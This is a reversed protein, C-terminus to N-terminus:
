LGIVRELNQRTLIACQQPNGSWYDVRQVLRLQLLSTVQISKQTCSARSATELLPQLRMLVPM